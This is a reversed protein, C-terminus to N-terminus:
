ESNYVFTGFGIVSNEQQFIIHQRKYIYTHLCFCSVCILSTLCTDFSCTNMLLKPQVAGFQSDILCASPNLKKLISKLRCIEIASVLDTKNLILVNAVEVQDILLDVITREDMEEAGLEKREVAKEKSHYDKM